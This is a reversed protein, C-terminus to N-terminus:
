DDAHANVPLNMCNPCRYMGPGVHDRQSACRPCRNDDVHGCRSCYTWSSPWRSPHYRRHGLKGCVWRRIRRPILRM